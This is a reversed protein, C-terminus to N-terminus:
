AAGSGATRVAGEDGDSREDVTEALITRPMDIQSGSFYLHDHRRDCSSEAFRLASGVTLTKPPRVSAISM